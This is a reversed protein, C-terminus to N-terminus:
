KGLIRITSEIKAKLQKATDNYPDLNLVADCTQLAEQYDGQEFEGQARSLWQNVTSATLPASPSQTPSGPSESGSQSATATQTAAAGEATTATQTADQITRLVPDSVAAERDEETGRVQGTQDVRFSRTGTQGYLLPQASLVYSTIHGQDNASGAAYAFRYGQIGGLFAQKLGGADQMVPATANLLDEIKQPFSGKGEDAAYRELKDQVSGLIAVAHDEYSQLLAPESAAVPEQGESIFPIKFRTRLAWNDVRVRGKSAQATVLNGDPSFDFTGQGPLSFERLLSGSSVNWVLYLENNEPTIGSTVLTRGDPSFKVGTFNLDMSLRETPREIHFPLTHLVKGSSVQWIRVVGYDDYSALLRGDPSFAVALVARLPDFVQPAMADCPQDDDGRLTNRLDGTDTKWLTIDGNREGSALISGDNSYALSEADCTQKEDSDSSISNGGGRLLHVLKGTGADLLYLSGNVREVAVLKGDGSIVVLGYGNSVNSGGSVSVMDPPPTELATTKKARWMLLTDGTFSTEGDASLSYGLIPGQYISTGSPIEWIDSGTFLLLPKRGPAGDNFELITGTTARDLITGIREPPLPERPLFHWTAVAASALVAPIGVALGLKRWNIPKRPRAHLHPPTSIAPSITRAQQLPGLVAGCRGCFSRGQNVPFGCKPCNLTGRSEGHM